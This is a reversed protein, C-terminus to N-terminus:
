YVIEVKESERFGIRHAIATVTDKPQVKIGEKYLYWHAPNMGMHNIQYVISAGDTTSNLYVMGNSLSMEPAGTVPQIGEPWFEEVLYKEHVFKIGKDDTKRIWEDLAIRLRVLDNQYEPLGAINNLEYPDNELDYLEEPEKKQRFWYEQAANLRGERHMNLLVQMTQLQKRYELDQYAGIDTRYNRIYKFKSDRVARRCDTWEDMRDRAAFIYNRPASRQNGLFAQGDMYGPITVGALSLITAPIDVFSCLEDSVTGAFKKDPFRVLFPVKLGSDLIERKGRPLPGGNDSYFIIITQNLLGAKELESLIEGVERDMIAINTYVRAIDRRVETTDPYYPPITISDPSVAEPEDAWVAVQSEHTRILNFVAFFPSGTPKNKWSAKRGSEDWASKPAIFQYDEKENNTCYYGAERLYETFCRVFPPPTCEYPPVQLSDPVNMIKRTNSTRMNNGGTGTPYMGTILAHRSPASVGSVSFMNTYRIGERAIRDINPTLAHPDGYCGLLPSIDECTICLINPRTLTKKGTCSNLSPNLILCSFYLLGTLRTSSPSLPLSQSLLSSNRM